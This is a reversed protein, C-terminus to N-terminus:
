QVVREYVLMPTGGGPIPIREPRKRIGRGDMALKRLNQAVFKCGEFDRASFPEGIPFLAIQRELLAIGYAPASPEQTQPEDVELDLEAIVLRHGAYGKPAPLTLQIM